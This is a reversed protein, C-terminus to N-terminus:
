QDHHKDGMHLHVHNTRPHPRSPRSRAISGISRRYLHMDEHWVRGPLHPRSRAARRQGLKRRKAERRAAKSPRLPRGTFLEYLRNAEGPNMGKLSVSFSAFANRVQRVGDSLRQLGELYNLSPTYTIDVARVPVPVPNHDSPRGYEDLMTFTAVRHQPWAEFDLLPM